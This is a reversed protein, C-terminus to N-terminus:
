ATPRARIPLTSGPWLDRYVIRSCTPLGARWDETRGKFYSVVTGTESEGVPVVNGSAGVFDLKVVWREPGAGAPRPGTLAITVGEPSFYLSKDKGQVCYAVREDLRGRNPVFCVPMKGFDTDVKLKIQGAPIQGAQRAGVSPATM